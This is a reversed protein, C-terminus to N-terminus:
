LGLCWTRLFIFNKPVEVRALNFHEQSAKQTKIKYRKSLEFLESVDEKLNTLIM